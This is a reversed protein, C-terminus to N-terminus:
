NISFCRNHCLLANYMHQFQVVMFSNLKKNNEFVKSGIEAISIMSKHQNTKQVSNVARINNNYKKEPSQLRFMCLYM